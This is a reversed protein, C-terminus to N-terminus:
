VTEWDRDRALAGTTATPQVEIPPDPLPTSEQEKAEFRAKLVEHIMEQNQQQRQQMMQALIKVQEDQAQQQRLVSEHLQQQSSVFLHVLDQPNIATAHPEDFVSELNLATQFRQLIANMGFQKMFSLLEGYFLEKRAEAPPPGMYHIEFVLRTPQEYTWIHLHINDLYASKLRREVMISYLTELSILHKQERRRADTYLVLIGEPILLFVFLMGNLQHEAILGMRMIENPYQPVHKNEQTHNNMETKEMSTPNFSLGRRPFRSPPVYPPHDSM